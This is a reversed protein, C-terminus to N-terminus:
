KWNEVMSLHVSFLTLFFNTAAPSPVGAGSWREFKFLLQLGEMTESSDVRFNSTTTAPQDGKGRCPRVGFRCCCRARRVGCLWEAAIGISQQRVSVLVVLQRSLLFLATTSNMLASSRCQVHSCTRSLHSQADSTM